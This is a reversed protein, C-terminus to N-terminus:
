IDNVKEIVNLNNNSNNNESKMNQELQTKEDTKNLKVNEDFSSHNQIANNIKTKFDKHRPWYPGILSLLVPLFFLSNIVGLTMLIVMTKFFTMFIYSKCFGLLFIGVITSFASNFIPLGIHMCAKYARHNRDGKGVSAIFAHTIHASFDVCFGVSMILEIMTISSLTLGWFNMSGILGIMISIMSLLICLVSILDPIFILAIFYMSEIAIIFSQVVNPLTQEFQEYYKFPVSYALIPLESERCLKRLLHMPKADQSSFYLRDYQMYFRSAAIQYEFNNNNILNRSSPKEPNKDLLFVSTRNNEIKNIVLDNLFPPFDKLDEYLNEIRKKYKIKENNSYNELWNLQFKKNIGDIKFADNIFTKLKLRTQPNDYDIPRYVVFMVIPNLDVLATNDKIYTNYYSDDSVLDGLSIGEKMMSASWISLSMYIFYVVVTLTKGFKNYIIFKFLNSWIQRIGKAVKKQLCKGFKWKYRETKTISNQKKFTNNTNSNVNLEICENGEHHEVEEKSSGDSCCKLSKQKFCFLFANNKKRMRITHLCLFGSFLTLQNFYCFLISFSAYVCFIQVAKFGTTLGIIFAVFDTLSTITISVGSKRLSNSILDSLLEDEDKRNKHKIQNRYYHTYSAYIIFMDDIGIGIVLFPIVFILNCGNYGIYSLFGFASTLGFVASTIGVSPLLAGPSTIWNSNISMLMISFITMLTFTGTVLFIDLSINAVIESDLSQSTAYSIRLSNLIAKDNEKKDFKCQGKSSTSFNALLNNISKLFEIEWLKVFKDSFQPSSKLNYRLKLFRSFGPVSGNSSQNFSNVYFHKGLNYTLDTFDPDLGTIKFYFRFDNSSKSSSSEDSHNSSSDSIGLIENEQKEKQIRTKEYMSKTIWQEYFDNGLLDRGEITCKGNRKACVHEFGLKFSDNIQVFTNQLLYDNIKVIENMYKSQLINEFYKDKKDSACPIFNIEAWTGMDLLQHIYFNSTTTSDNFITKLYLEDKIAESDIPMFLDEADTIIKIRYIGVSLILNILFSAVIVHIYYKSLFRGYSGFIKEYFTNVKEFLIHFM